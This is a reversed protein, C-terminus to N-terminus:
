DGKWGGIEKEGIVRYLASPFPRKVPREPVYLVEFIIAKEWYEVEIRDGVKVEKSAKAVNGNVKVRGSDCMEKAVTRRKAIGSVQLFKDLRM